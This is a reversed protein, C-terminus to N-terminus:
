YFFLAASASIDAIFLYIYAAVVEMDASLLIYAHIILLSIAREM